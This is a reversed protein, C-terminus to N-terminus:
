SGRVLRLERAEGLCIEIACAAGNSDETACSWREVNSEGSQTRQYRPLCAVPSVKTGDFGGRVPVLGAKVKRTGARTEQMHLM